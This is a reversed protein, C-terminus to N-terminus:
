KENLFEWIKIWITDPKNYARNIDFLWDFTNRIDKQKIKIRKTRNKSFLQRTKYLFKLYKWLNCEVYIQFGYIGKIMSAVMYCVKNEDFDYNFEGLYIGNARSAEGWINIFLDEIMRNM